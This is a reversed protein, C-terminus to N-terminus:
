PAAPRAEAGKLSEKVLESFEERLIAERREREEKQLKLIGRKEEASIVQNEKRMRVANMRRHRSGSMVYGATEYDAIEDSTLGIEGRRPIRSETGDQLFAAMASGEGRLLAGGYSREDIKRATPKIVPQPGVELDSDDDVPRKASAPQKVVWEDEDDPPATSRGRSSGHKPLPSRSRTPSRVSRSRRKSRSRRRDEEEDEDDYGPTEEREKAEREKEKRRKKEKKERRRREEESSDTDTDSSDYRRRKSKKSSHKRKPSLDRAPEKPSPPWIDVTKSERQLRRNELWDSGGGGRYDDYERGNRNTYAARSASRDEAAPAGNGPGKYDGYEPTARRNSAGNRGRDSDYDHRDRERDRSVDRGRRDRDRNREREEDRRRPPSRSRSRYSRRPPSRDRDRDRRDSSFSSDQPVLAMRSPHVTAMTARTFTLPFLNHTPLDASAGFLQADPLLRREKLNQYTDYPCEALGRFSKLKLIKRAKGPNCFPGPFDFKAESDGVPIAKEDPDM